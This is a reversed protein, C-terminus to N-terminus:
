EDARGPDWTGPVMPLTPGGGFEDHTLTALGAARAASNKGATGAFGFTGAGQDSGATSALQASPTAGWDPAVEIDIAMFEHGHGRETVRRHRRARGQQRAASAAAAAATDPESTKKGAGSSARTGMESGFGVGPPGVIYPPPFGAGAATPAPLSPPPASAAATSPAPAPAPMPAPAPGPVGASVAPSPAIGGAPLRDSPVPAPVAEPVAASQPIGALGALGAFGGVAGVAGVSATVVGLAAVTLEPQFANIFEGLHGAEDSVLGSIDSTLQPIAQSPNTFFEAFDRNLTDTIETLRNSYWSTDYPDGSDNDIIPQIGSASRQRRQRRGPDAAGTHHRSDIGGCLQFGDSLYDHDHRGSGM